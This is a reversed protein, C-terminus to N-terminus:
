VEWSALLMVRYKWSVSVKRVSVSSATTTSFCQAFAMRPIGGPHPTAGGGSRGHGDGPGALQWGDRGREGRYVRIDTRAAEGARQSPGHVRVEGGRTALM